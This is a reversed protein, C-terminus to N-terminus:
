IDQRYRKMMKSIHQIEYQELDKYATKGHMAYSLDGFQIVGEIYFLEMFINEENSSNELYYGGEFKKPLAIQMMGEEDILVYSTHEFAVPVGSGYIKYTCYKFSDKEYFFLGSGAFVDFNSFEQNVVKEWIQNKKTNDIKNICSTTIFSVVFLLLVIKKIM